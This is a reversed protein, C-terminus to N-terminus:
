DPQRVERPEGDAPSLHRYESPTMGYVQRFMSSLASLSRFGCKQAIDGLQMNRCGADSMIAEAKRLRYSNVLAYFNTCMDQTIVEWLYTRNTNLMRCVKDNSLDPDKFIEEEELLRLLEQGLQLHKIEAQGGPEPGEPQVPSSEPSYLDKRRIVFINLITPMAVGMFSIALKFGYGEVLLCGIVCLSLVLMGGSVWQIWQLNCGEFNSYRDAILRRHSNHIRVIVVSLVVQEAIVMAVGAFRVWLAPEGLYPGIQAYSLFPPLPGWIRGTLALALALIAPPLYAPLWHRPKICGPRMLEFLYFYVLPWILLVMMTHVPNLLARMYFATHFHQVVGVVPVLATFLYALALLNAPRRMGRLVCLFITNLLMIASFSVAICLFLYPQVESM